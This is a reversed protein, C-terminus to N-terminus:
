VSHRVRAARAVKRKLEARGSPSTRWRAKLGALLPRWPSSRDGDICDAIDQWLMRPTPILRHEPEEMFCARAWWCCFCMAESSASGDFVHAHSLYAQKPQIISGCGDCTHQKRAIRPAERWVDCVGDYDLTCM